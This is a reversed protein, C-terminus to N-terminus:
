YFGLAKLFITVPDLLSEKEVQVMPLKSNSKNPSEPNQKAASPTRPPEPKSKQQFLSNYTEKKAIQELVRYQSQLDNSKSSDTRLLSQIEFLPNQNSAWLPLFTALFM